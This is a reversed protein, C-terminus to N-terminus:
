RKAKMKVLGRSFKHQQSLDKLPYKAHIKDRAYASHLQDLNENWYSKRNATTVRSCQQTYRHIIM